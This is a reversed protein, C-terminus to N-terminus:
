PVANTEKEREAEVHKHTHIYESTVIVKILFLKEEFAEIDIEHPM